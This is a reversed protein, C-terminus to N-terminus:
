IEEAKEPHEATVKSTFWFIALTLSTIILWVAFIQGSLFRPRSLGARGSRSYHQKRAMPSRASERVYGMVVVIWVGIVGAIMAASRAVPSINGWETQSPEKLRLFDIALTIAGMTILIFLAVLKYSM